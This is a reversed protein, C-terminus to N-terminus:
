SQNRYSEASGKTCCVRPSKGNQLVFAGDKLAPIFHMLTLFYNSM